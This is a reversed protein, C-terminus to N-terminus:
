RVELVGLLVLKALHRLAELRSMGSVDIIEDFTFTGDIRSLLFVARSDLDQSSLEHMPLSLTPVQGLDGIYQEYTACFEDKSRHILKQATASEPEEELALDLAAVAIHLRGATREREARQILTSVRRRVRDADAEDPGADRDLERLLVTCMSAFAVAGTGTIEEDGDGGAAMEDVILSQDVVVAPGGESMARREVTLEEELESGARGARREVTLEEELIGSAQRGSPRETTLEDDFRGGVSGPRKSERTDAESRFALEPDSDGEMRRDDRRIEIDLDDLNPLSPISARAGLSGREATTEDSPAGGPFSPRLADLVDPSLELGREYPPPEEGGPTTSEEERMKHQVGPSTEEDGRVGRSAAGMAIRRRASSSAGVRRSELEVTDRTGLEDETRAPPKAPPPGPPPFAPSTGATALAASGSAPPAAPVKKKDSGKEPVPPLFAEDDLDWGDDVSGVELKPPPAASTAATGEKPEDGTSSVEVEAYDDDADAGGDLSAVGFPVDLEAEHSERVERFREALVDFHEVVYDYYQRARRHEPQLSLAHEWEGIAALLEGRGYHELGRRVLSEAQAAPDGGSDESAV